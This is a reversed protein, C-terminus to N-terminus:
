GDDHDDPDVHNSPDYDVSNEHMNQLNPFATKVTHRVLPCVSMIRYRTDISM